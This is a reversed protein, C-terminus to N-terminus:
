QQLSSASGTERGAAQCGLPVRERRSNIKFVDRISVPNDRCNDPSLSACPSLPQTTTFGSRGSLYYSFDAASLAFTSPMLQRPTLDLRLPRSRHALRAGLWSCHDVGCQRRYPSAAPQAAVGLRAALSGCAGRYRNSQGSERGSTRRAGRSSVRLYRPPNRTLPAWGRCSNHPAAEAPLPSPPPVPVNSLLVTHHSSIDIRTAM